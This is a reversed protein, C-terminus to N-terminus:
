RAVSPISSSLPATQSPTSRSTAAPGSSGRVAPTAPYTKVESRHKTCSRCRTTSTPSGTSGLCGSAARRLLAEVSNRTRQPKAGFARYAERWAAVHPIQELPQEALAQRAAAEATLLLADSGEDSPGAVLGDVALLLATTLGCLLFPTM